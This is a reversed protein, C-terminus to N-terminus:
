LYSRQTSSKSEPLESKGERGEGSVKREINMSMEIITM